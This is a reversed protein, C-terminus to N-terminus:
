QPDWRIHCQETLFYLAEVVKRAPVRQEVFKTVVADIVQTQIAQQIQPDSATKCILPLYVHM